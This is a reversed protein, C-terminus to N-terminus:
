SDVCSLVSVLKSMDLMDMNNTVMLVSMLKRTDTSM